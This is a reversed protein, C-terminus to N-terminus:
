QNQESLFPNNQIEDQPIEFQMREDNYPITVGAEFIHNSGRTVSVKNRKMALFSKGEGWLEIRTQLYIETKLGQGSLGDVYSADPLRREMLAKLSIKAAADNGSRAHSEANLLYMEEIRMYVYDSTIPRPASGIEDSARFKNLPQLFRGSTEDGFFQAKRADNAPIQNYLGVDMAKYDGAWGYSYSWADVQGWWSVLGLGNTPIIDIGWMWSSVSVDDFGNIGGEAAVLESEALMTYNGSDIIQQTLSAVESDRGGKAGLVFALFAKSIDQNVVNKAIRNFGNLLSIAETLDKEMFDYIELASSKPVNKAAVETYLPLIMESSNYEKQYIQTLYFYCYARLTKAQGMAYKNDSSEPINDNGGLSAIVNNSSRILRYYYRWAMRNRGFTFDLSTQFNAISNYWRYDSQSLAMDGCLMDLMIDYGKQGFDTQSSSGGTGTSIMQSYIGTIFAAPIDPNTSAGDALQATTIQQTQQSNGTVGDNTLIDESCNSFSLAIVTLLTIKIIKKM